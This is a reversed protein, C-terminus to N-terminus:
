KNERAYILSTISLESYSLIMSLTYIRIYDLLWEEGFNDIFYNRLPKSLCEIVRQKVQVNVDEIQDNSMETNAGASNGIVDGMKANVIYITEFKILKELHLIATDYTDKDIAFNQDSNQEDYTKIRTGIITLVAIIGISVLICVTDMGTM